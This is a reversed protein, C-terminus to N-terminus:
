KNTQEKRKMEQKGKEDMKIVTENCYQIYKNLEMKGMQATEMESSNPEAKKGEKQMYDTVATNQHLAKHTIM